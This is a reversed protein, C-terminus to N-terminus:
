SPMRHPHLSLPVSGVFKYGSYAILDVIAGDGSINLLYCGLKIMLFEVFIVGLATTAEGRLLPTSFPFSPSPGRSASLSLLQAKFEGRSGAVIGSLLIYTTLAMVTGNM